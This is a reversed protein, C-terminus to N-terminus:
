RQQARHEIVHKTLLKQIESDNVVTEKHTRKSHPLYHQKPVSDFAIPKGMVTSIIESDNTLKQWFPLCNAIYGAQFTECRNNLYPKLSSEIFAPFNSVTSKFSELYQM